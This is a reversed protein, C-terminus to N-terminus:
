LVVVAAAAVVAVTKYSCQSGYFMATDTFRAVPLRTLLYTLKNM